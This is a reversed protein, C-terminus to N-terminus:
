QCFLKCVFNNKEKMVLFKFHSFKVLFETLETWALVEQKDKNSFKSDFQKATVAKETFYRGYSLLCENMNYKWGTRSDANVQYTKALEFFELDNLHDPM